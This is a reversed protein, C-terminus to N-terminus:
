NPPPSPSISGAQAGLIRVVAGPQLGTIKTFETYVTFKRAFAMQRDGIMFLGLAFLALGGVVFVGVGALSTPSSMLRRWAFEHVGPRDPGRQCRADPHRRGCAHTGRAPRRLFR